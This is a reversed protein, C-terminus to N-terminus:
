WVVGDHIYLLRRYISVGTNYSLNVYFRKQMCLWSKRSLIHNGEQFFLLLIQLINVNDVVNHDVLGCQKYCM